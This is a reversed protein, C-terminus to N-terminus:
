YLLFHSHLTISSKSLFSPFVYTVHITSTCSLFFIYLFSSSLVSFRGFYYEYIKKLEVYIEEEFLLFPFLLSGTGSLGTKEKLCGPLILIYVASNKSVVSGQIVKYELETYFFRVLFFFNVGKCVNSVFMLNFNLRESEWKGMLLWHTFPSFPFPSFFIFVSVLRLSFYVNLIRAKM